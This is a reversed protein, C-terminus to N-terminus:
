NLIPNKIQWNVQKAIGDYLNVKPYFNLHKQTKTLDARTHVQDGPRAKEFSIKTKTKLTDEIIAVAELLTISEDGGINYFEGSFTQQSALILAEVADTVYTNTRSQSGDGFIVVEEENIVRNIIKRYAMDPRQRPGYVSFFRLGTFPIKFEDFFALFLKEAALKSVGYPSVPNLVGAENSTANRGYVSSTSAHLIPIGGATRSASLLNGVALVNSSFYENMLTWSPALGPMAALNFVLDVNELLGSHFKETLDFESFKFSRNEILHRLNREKEARSYLLPLLCDVGIVSNGESLLREVLHSGIFGACGTVLYNLSKAKAHSL